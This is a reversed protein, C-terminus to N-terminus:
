KSLDFPATSTLNQSDILRRIAKRQKDAYFINKIYVRYIYIHREKMNEESRTIFDIAKCGKRDKMEEDAGRALLIM